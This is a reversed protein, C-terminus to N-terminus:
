KLLGMYTDLTIVVLPESRDRTIFLADHEGLWKYIQTFGTGRCKAEGTKDPANRGHRIDGVFTGGASGSLPVREAALGADRFLKVLKREFRMGKDRQAKAM